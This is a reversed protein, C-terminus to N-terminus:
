RTVTYSGPMFSWSGGPGSDFIASPLGTDYRIITNNEMVIKYATVEKLSVNNVLPIRGHAAYAVLSTVNNELSIAAVVGGTEASKNQSILFVFSGATGSNQFAANNQVRITSSNLQDTPKDAIIAVNQSGLAAAMKVLANNQININGAVWIHGTITVVANGTINLNCPIKKPGITTNSSINYSGNSCTASGGAAAQTEWDAIQEDTIPLEAIPQDASNPYSTGTVTTNTKTVYYANKDAVTAVSADGIAHAYISSTAHIGYVRGTAGAAVVDGYIMSSGTGKVTGGSYVNGYIAANNKMEFGGQGTQVGYHFSVHADNIGIKAVVTKTTVPNTRNPVYSTITVKKTVTDIPTVVVSFTGPGLLTDTEGTYAPSQNLQYVAKDIAGEAISLAQKQTLTTREAKSYSIISSLFATAVVLFIGLFIITLLLVYGRSYTTM